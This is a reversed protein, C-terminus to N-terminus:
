SPTRTMGRAIPRHPPLEQIRRHTKGHSTRYLVAVPTEPRSAQFLGPRIRFGLRQPRHPGAHRGSAHRRIKKLMDIRSYDYTETQPVHSEIWEDSHYLRHFTSVKRQQIRPPKVWGYHYVFADIPVVNLKRDGIRFGQADKYSHVGIHPRIVRIEHRYWRRSTGVYDYSGYFHRYRFLLGEVEKREAYRAMAQRITAYDEEHIAEDGQLYFAWDADPAIAALAKDTEAALVRGGERLSDDWVTPVIRLKDSGIARILDETADDSKGVAVVMEDVLQLLSRISEVIPYDYLVANRIFTFGSVKM